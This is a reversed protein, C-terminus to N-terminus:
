GSPSERKEELDEEEAPCAQYSVCGPKKGDDAKAPNRGCAPFPAAPPSLGYTSYSVLQLVDDLRVEGDNNVDASELCAPEFGTNYIYRLLENADQMSVQGDQDVDGRLFAQDLAAPSEVTGTSVHRLFRPEGADLDGLRRPYSRKDQKKWYSRGVRWSVREKKKEAPSARSPLVTEPAGPSKKEPSEAKRAEVKKNLLDVNGVELPPQLFWGQRSAAPRHPEVRLDKFIRGSMFIQDPNKFKVFESKEIGFEHTPNWGEELLAYYASSRSLVQRWRVPERRDLDM